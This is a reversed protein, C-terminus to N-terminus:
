LPILACAVMSYGYEMLYGLIGDREKPAPYRYVRVDDVLETRPQDAAAPSVVTVRYGARTLSMAERRVRGDEPYPNNELLM